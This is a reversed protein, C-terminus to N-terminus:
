AGKVAAAASTLAAIDDRRMDLGLLTEVVPGMKTGASGKVLAVDGAKVAFALRAALEASDACWGGRMDAPLRDFLARMHPGCCYVLDIGARKLPEALEGHLRDALEGLERMDGLAAIRRGGAGPDIRSLVDFAARMAAPSANYSEDIVTFSGQALHVRKRLGRGKVPQLSSMARAAAALDGGLGRVALLVSLSNLVHHRGPLSLCYQLREGKISATVASCTAHLSLEIIRADADQHEGFNWIRSLGANQAAALLRAYQANDRNLIAVGNPNMGEFIEAKADAVGEISPFHEIHVPEVTTIVAVDPAVQRSLPGLEGAHNMGLEFVGFQSAAPMRALSLPVGYHNNLNGATAFTSGQAALCHRIAEKTSTKGVSGTVAVIRAHTRARSARGLDELARTTDAVLLLPGAGSVGDPIRSVVAGAAGRALADAVFGHGDFNPGQLAFFLDGPGVSRSDISVGTASWPALVRGNVAAAAAAATWVVVPKDATESM